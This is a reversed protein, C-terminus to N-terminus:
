LLDIFVTENVNGYAKFVKIFTNSVPQLSYGFEIINCVDFLLVPSLMGKRLSTQRRYHRNKM